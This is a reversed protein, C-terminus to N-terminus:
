PQEGTAKAILTRVEGLIEARSSADDPYGWRNAILDEVDILAKLMEPAAEIVPIDREYTIRAILEDEAGVVDPMGCCAMERAGMYEVGVEYQGCCVRERTDALIVRGRSRWPGRTHGSM